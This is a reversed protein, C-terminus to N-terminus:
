KNVILKLNTLSLADISQGFIVVSKSVKEGVTKVTKSINETKAILKTQKM